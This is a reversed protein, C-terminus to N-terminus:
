YLEEGLVPNAGDDTQAFLSMLRSRRSKGAGLQLLIRSSKSRCGVGRGYIAAIADCM